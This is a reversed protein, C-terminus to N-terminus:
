ITRVSFNNLTKAEKPIDTNCIYLLKQFAEELIGDDIPNTHENNEERRPNRQEQFETGPTGMSNLLESHIEPHLIDELLYQHPSLENFIYDIITEWQWRKNQWRRIVHKRPVKKIGEHYRIWPDDHELAMNCFMSYSYERDFNFPRIIWPVHRNSPNYMRKEKLQEEQRLMKTRALAKQLKRYSQGNYDIFKNNRFHVPCYSGFLKEILDNRLEIFTNYKSFTILLQLNLKNTCHTLISEYPFSEAFICNSLKNTRYFKKNEMKNHNNPERDRIHEWKIKASSILHKLKIRILRRFSKSDNQIQSELQLLKRKVDENFSISGDNLGKFFLCHCDLVIGDCYRCESTNIYLNNTDSHSLINLLM